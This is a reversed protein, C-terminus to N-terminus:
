ILRVFHCLVETLKSQHITFVGGFYRFHRLCFLKNCFIFEIFSKCIMSAAKLATFRSDVIIKSGIMGGFIFDSKQLVFVTNSTMRM